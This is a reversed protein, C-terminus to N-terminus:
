YGMRGPVCGRVGGRPEEVDGERRPILHIHAHMITQGASVGCNIGVNFGTVEPYTQLIQRKLEMLLADADRREEFNMGFWDTVHRKPIILHHGKAVPFRDLIAFAQGYEAVYRGRKRIQCFLCDKEVVPARYIEADESRVAMM